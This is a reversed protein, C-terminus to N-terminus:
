SRREAKAIASKLLMDPFCCPAVHDERWKEIAECTQLLDYSAALMNADGELMDCAVRQGSSQSRVTYFGDTQQYAVFPGPTHKTQDAM